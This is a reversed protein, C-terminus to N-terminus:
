GDRALRLGTNQFSTPAPWFNRYTPRSHGRSTYSSSGRLVYQGVMFKGNYEGVVGATPRFGPYADYSSRTWQWTTGFFGDGGGSPLLSTIDARDDPGTDDLDFGVDPDGVARAAVEWEAETPLRAGLFRALADAEYFSLHTVPDDDRLVREGVVTFALLAGDDDRRRVYLPTRRGLRRQEDFGAALWLSPTDYGGAEIFARLTGVTVLSTAMQFPELFVRHAPGENDFVLDGPPLDRGVVVVGGEHTQWRSSLSPATGRFTASPPHLAPADPHHSLLHLADTVILEQHQEEHALGLTLIPALATVAGDDLGDLLAVVAGDVEQRWSTITAHDPRTILGRWPRALRAGVGDYYSNFLWAFGAHRPAIGAPGLLFQEFFWTTHARHWKTPSADPMSQVQQDEPSLWSTLVETRRRVHRYRRILADRDPLM